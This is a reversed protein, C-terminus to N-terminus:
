ATHTRHGLVLTRLKDSSIAIKEKAPGFAAAERAKNFNAEQGGGPRETSHSNLPSFTFLVANRMM